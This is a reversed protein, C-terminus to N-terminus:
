FILMPRTASHGGSDIRLLYCGPQLGETPLRYQASGSGCTEPYVERLQRGRLDFVRLATEGPDQDAYVDVICTTGMAAPHPRPIGITLPHAAPPPLIRNVADFPVRLIRHDTLMYQAPASSPASWAYSDIMGIDASYWIKALDAHMWGDHTVFVHDQQWYRPNFTAQVFFLNIGRGDRTSWVRHHNCDAWTGTEWTEGGTATKWVHRCGVVIAELDSFARVEVFTDETELVRYQSSWFGHTLDLWSQWIDGSESIWGLGSPSLWRLSGGRHRPFRGWSAGADTTILIGTESLVAVFSTDAGSAIFSYSGSYQRDKCVCTWSRGGDTSRFVAASDPGTRPPLAFILAPTVFRVSSLGASDLDCREEWSRGGRMTSYMKMRNTTLDRAKLLGRNDDFMTFDELDLLNTRGQVWTDGDDASVSLNGRRDCCALLGSGDTDLGTTLDDYHQSVYEHQRKASGTKVLQFSRCGDRSRYVNRLLDTYYVSGSDRAFIRLAVEPRVARRQWTAGADTSVAFEYTEYWPPKAQAALIITNDATWQAAAGALHFLSQHRELELRLGGVARWNKGGDTTVFLNNVALSDRMICGLETFSRGFLSMEWVHYMKAPLPCPFRRGRCREM